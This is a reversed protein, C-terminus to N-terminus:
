SSNVRAASWSSRMRTAYLTMGVNGTWRERKRSRKYQCRMWISSLYMGASPPYPCAVRKGRVDSLGTRTEGITLQCRDRDMFRASLWAVVLARVRLCGVDRSARRGTMASLQRRQWAAPISGRCRAGTDAVKPPAISACGKADAIGMTRCNSRSRAMSVLSIRGTHPASPVSLHTSPSGVICCLAWVIFKATPASQLSPLAPM